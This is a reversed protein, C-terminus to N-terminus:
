NVQKVDCATSEKIKLIEPNGKYYLSCAGSCNANLENIAYIKASSAGSLDGNFKKTQLDFTKIATSGSASLKLESVKGELKVTSAGLSKLDCLNASIEGLELTSAGTLDLKSNEFETVSEAKLSSAGTLKIAFDEAVYLKKFSLKSAGTAKINKLFNYNVTIKAKSFKITKKHPKLGIHLTGNKVETIVYDLYKEDIEIIINKKNSHIFDLNWGGTASVNTFPKVERIDKVIESKKSQSFAFSASLFLALFFIKQLNKM